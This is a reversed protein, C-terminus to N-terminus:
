VMCSEARLLNAFGLLLALRNENKALSRYRVKSYGFMQKVYFFMHEVKARVSSKCEEMLRELEDGALRRRQSPRMTIHWAVQRDKHAERKEIGRYGADGWVRAEEGHLLEESATLDHVNASTTALSHVLGSKDDVGVHLKMGFHWQNGKRTQKMEPDRERKRNKTSSPAEIISADVIRGEKLMLGAESLHEKISEFLVQGLGHSELLHRFNLITTEDPVKSLSIGTFRRVSEIEYLMDEMAPDSLNYFLQVCHVRLMSELEYPVRGKGAKPYYPKIQDLLREWRILADMRELFRERRTKHKKSEYELDAFNREVSEM